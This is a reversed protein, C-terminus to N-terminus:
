IFFLFKHNFRLCQTNILRLLLIIIPNKALLCVHEFAGNVDSTASHAWKSLHMKNLLKWEIDISWISDFCGFCGNWICYTGIAIWHSYKTSSWSRSWKWTIQNASARQWLVVNICVIFKINANIQQCQRDKAVNKGVVFITNKVRNIPIEPTWWRRYTFEEHISIKWPEFDILHYNFSLSRSRFRIWESSLANRYMKPM